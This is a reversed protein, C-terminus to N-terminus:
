GVGYPPYGPEIGLKNDSVTQDRGGKPAPNEISHHTLAPIITLQKTNKGNPKM